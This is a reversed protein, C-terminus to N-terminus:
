RATTADPAESSRRADRERKFRWLRRLEDANVYVSGDATHTALGERQIYRNLTQSTIRMERAAQKKTWWTTADPTDEFCMDRLLERVDRDKLLADTTGEFGCFACVLTFDALEESHSEVGMSPDGCVPM